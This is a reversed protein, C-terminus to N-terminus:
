DLYELDKMYGLSQDLVWKLKEPIRMRDFQRDMRDTAKASRATSHTKLTGDKYVVLMGRNSFESRHAVLWLEDIDKNNKPVKIGFYCYYNYNDLERMDKLLKSARVVEPPVEVYNYTVDGIVRSTHINKM